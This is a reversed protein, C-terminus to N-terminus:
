DDLLTYVAAAGQQEVRLRLDFEGALEHVDDALDAASTAHTALDTLTDTIGDADALSPEVALIVRADAAAFMVDVITTDPPPTGSEQM